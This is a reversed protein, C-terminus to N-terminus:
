LNKIELTILVQVVTTIVKCVNAFGNPYGACITETINFMNSPWRGWVNPRTCYWDDPVPVHIEHLTDPAQQNDQFQVSILQQLM